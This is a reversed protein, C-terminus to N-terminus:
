VVFISFVLVVVFPLHDTIIIVLLAFLFLLVVFLLVSPRVDNSRWLADDTTRTRNLSPSSSAIAFHFSFQWGLKRTAIFAKGYVTGM